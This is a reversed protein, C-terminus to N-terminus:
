NELIADWPLNQPWTDRGLAARICQSLYRLKAKVPPNFCHGEGYLDPYQYYAMAEGFITARDEDPTSCGYSSIFYEYNNGVDYAAIELQSDYGVYEFGDPNFSNWKEETLPFPSDSARRLLVDWIMHSLEHHLTYSFYRGDDSMEEPIYCNSDIHITYLESGDEYYCGYYAGASSGGGTLHVCVTSTIGDRSLDRFFGDPYCAFVREMIDLCQEIRQYDLCLETGFVDAAIKDAIVIEVGFSDRIHKAKAYLPALEEVTPSYIDELNLPVGGSAQLNEYGSSTAGDYNGAAFEDLLDGPGEWDSKSLPQGFRDYERRVCLTSDTAADYIIILPFNGTPDTLTVARSGDPDTWMKRVSGDPLYEYEESLIVTNGDYEFHSLMRGLRDYETQSVTNGQDDRVTETRSLDETIVPQADGPSVEGGPEGCGSCLLMLLVCLVAAIKGTM